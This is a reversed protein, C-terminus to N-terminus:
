DHNMENPQDNFESFFLKGRNETIAASFLAEKGIFVPFYEPLSASIIDGEKLAMLEALTLNINSLQSTLTVPLKKVLHELQKESLSVNKEVSKESKTKITNIFRDIHPADIFISFGSKHYDKLFFDIRYSWCAILAATSNNIILHEGFFPQNLFLDTIELGLKNKLREETKTLPSLKETTTTKKEQSLGYYDNLINLLLLRDIDFAINGMQSTLMKANKHSCNTQFKIDDLTINIRYKKLFYLSIESEIISFYSNVIKPIKHHPRGLKNIELSVIDPRPDHNYVKAKVKNSQM